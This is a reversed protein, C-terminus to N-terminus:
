EVRNFVCTAKNFTNQSKGDLAENEFKDRFEAWTPNSTRQYRGAKLDDEWAGAAKLAKKRDTQETSRAVRRGTEPDTYRMYLCPWNNVKVVHVKIEDSM